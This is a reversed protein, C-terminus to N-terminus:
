FNRVKNDLINLVKVGLLVPYLLFSSSADFLLTQHFRLPSRSLEKELAARQEFDLADQHLMISQPDKQAM